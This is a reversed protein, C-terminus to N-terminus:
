SSACATGASALAHKFVKRWEEGTRSPDHERRVYERGVAAVAQRRAEDELLSVIADSLAAVVSDENTNLPVTIGARGGDLAEALDGVDTVVPVAGCAMAELVALTRGETDSTLLLVKARRLVDSVRDVRGLLCLGDGLAARATTLERYRSLRAKESETQSVVAVRTGPRRRGTAALVNFMRDVRKDRNVRGVYAIDIDRITPAARFWTDDIAAHLTMLMPRVIGISRLWDCTAQGTCTVVTTANLHRRQYSEAWRKLARPLRSLALRRGGEIIEARGGVLNAVVPVGLRRAVRLVGPGDPFWHVTMVVHPQWRVAERRLIYARSILKSLGVLPWWPPPAEVRVKRSLEVDSRDRVVAIEAVEELAALPSLYAHLVPHGVNTVVLVRLEGM